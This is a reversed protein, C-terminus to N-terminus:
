KLDRYFYYVYNGSKATDLLFGSNMIYNIVKNVSEDGIVHPHLELLLKNINNREFNIKKILDKEGGEIDVILFTIKYKIIENNIDETEIKILEAENTRKITSSSYFNNELYFDIKDKKDSLIINKIVPKVNNLRYNEQILKIMNPNAEYAIVNNNNVKSCFISLFGMGAGVEMVIDEKKLVQSLIVIEEKEYAYSYVISRIHNSILENNVILKVGNYNVMNPKIFKNIYKLVKEKM